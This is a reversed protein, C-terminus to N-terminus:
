SGHTPMGGGSLSQKEENKDKSELRTERLTRKEAFRQERWFVFFNKIDLLFYQM